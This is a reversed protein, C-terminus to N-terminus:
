SGEEGARVSHLAVEPAHLPCGFVCTSCTAVQRQISQSGVPAGRDDGVLSLLANRGPNDGRHGRSATIGGEFILNGDADYLLAHGSTRVGFQSAIRADPDVAVSVGRIAAADDWLNTKSWSADEQSPQFFLVHCDLNGGCRNMLLSLEELTAETCPCKPHAFLIMTPKIASRAVGSAEPWTALPHGQEGPRNTYNMLAWLGSAVAILWVASLMGYVFDKDRLSSSQVISNFPLFRKM